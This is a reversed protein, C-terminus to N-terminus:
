GAPTDESKSKLAVIMSMVGPPLITHNTYTKKRPVGVSKTYPNEGCADYTVFAQRATGVFMYWVIQGYGFFFPAACHAITSLGPNSGTDEAHCASISVM